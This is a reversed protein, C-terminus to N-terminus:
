WHFGRLPMTPWSSTSPAERSLKRADEPTPEENSWWDRGETRHKQDVSFAGGLAGIVLDSIQTRGGRPLVRISSRFTALGDAEACSGENTHWYRWPQAVDAVELIIGVLWGMLLFWV